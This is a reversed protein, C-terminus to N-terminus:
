KGANRSEKPKKPEYQSLNWIDAQWGILRPSDGTFIEALKEALQNKAAMMGGDHKVVIDLEYKFRYDYGAKRAMENTSKTSPKGAGSM